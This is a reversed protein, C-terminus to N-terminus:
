DNTNCLSKNQKPCIPGHRLAALLGSLGLESVSHSRIIEVPTVVTGYYSLNLDDSVTIRVGKLPIPTYTGRSQLKTFSVVDVTLDEFSSQAVTNGDGIRIGRGLQFTGTYFSSLAMHSRILLVMELKDSGLSFGLDPVEVRYFAKQSWGEDQRVLLLGSGGTLVRGRYLDPAIFIAKAKTVHNKFWDDKAALALIAGEAKDALEQEENTDEESEAWASKGSFSVVGPEPHVDLFFLGTSLLLCLGTLRVFSFKRCPFNKMM